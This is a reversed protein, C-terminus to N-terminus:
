APNTERGPRGGLFTRGGGGLVPAAARVATGGRGGSAAAARLDQALQRYHDFMQQAARSLPGLSQQVQRGFRAAIVECVAAAALWAPRGEVPVFQLLIMEIEEDQVLPDNEQTDGVLLRVEDKRSSAINEPTYEWTM